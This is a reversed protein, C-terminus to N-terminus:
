CLKNNKIFRTEIAYPYFDLSEFNRRTHQICKHWDNQILYLSTYILPTVIFHSFVVVVVVVDMM